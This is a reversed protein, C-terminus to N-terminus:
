CGLHWFLSLTFAIFSQISMMGSKEMLFVFFIDSNNIVILIGIYKWFAECWGMLHVYNYPYKSLIKVDSLGKERVLTNHILTKICNM